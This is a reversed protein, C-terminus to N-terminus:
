SLGRPRPHRHEQGRRRQAGSGPQPLSRTAGHAQQGDYPHLGRRRAGPRRGARAGGGADKQENREEEDNAQPTLEGAPGRRGGALRDLAASLRVVRERTFPRTTGDLARQVLLADDENDEVVLVRPATAAM